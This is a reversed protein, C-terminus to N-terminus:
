DFITNKTLNKPACPLSASIKAPSRNLSEVAIRKDAVWKFKM